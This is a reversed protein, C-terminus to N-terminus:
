RYNIGAPIRARQCEIYGYFYVSGSTLLSTLILSNTKGFAVTNFQLRVARKMAKLFFYSEYM